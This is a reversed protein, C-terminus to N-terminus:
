CAGIGPAAVRDRRGDVGAGLALLRRRSLGTRFRSGM